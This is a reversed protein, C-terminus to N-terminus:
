HQALNRDAAPASVNVPASSKGTMISPLNHELWGKMSHVDLGYLSVTVHNNHVAKDQASYQKMFQLADGIKATSQNIKEWMNSSNSNTNNKQIAGPAVANPISFSQPLLSSSYFSRLSGGYKNSGLGIYPPPPENMKSVVSKQKEQQVVVNAQGRKIHEQKNKEEQIRKAEKELLWNAEPGAEGIPKNLVRPWQSYGWSQIKGNQDFVGPGMGWRRPDDEFGFQFGYQQKLYQMNGIANPTLAAKMNPTMFKSLDSGIDFTTGDARTGVFATKSSNPGITVNFAEKAAKILDSNNKIALQSTVLEILKAQEDPSLDSTKDAKGKLQSGAKRTEYTSMLAASLTVALNAAGETEDGHGFLKGINTTFEKLAATQEDGQFKTKIIDAYAEKIAQVPDANYAAITEINDKDGKGTQFVTGAIMRDSAARQSVESARNQVDGMTSKYAAEQLLSRQQMNYFPNKRLEAQGVANGEQNLQAQTPRKIMSDSYAAVMGDSKFYAQAAKMIEINNEKKAKSLNETIIAVFDSMNGSNKLQEYLEKNQAALAKIMPNKELAKQDGRVDFLDKKVDKFSQLAEEQSVNHRDAFQVYTSVDRYQTNTALATNGIRMSQQTDTLPKISSLIQQLAVNINSFATTHDRLLQSSHKLENLQQQAVDIGNKEAAQINSEINTTPM